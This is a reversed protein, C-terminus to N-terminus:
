GVSVGDIQVIGMTDNIDANKVLPSWDFRAVIKYNILKIQVIAM